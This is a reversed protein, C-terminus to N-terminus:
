LEEEDDREVTDESCISAIRARNNLCFYDLNWTHVDDAIWAIFLFRDATRLLHLHRQILSGPGPFSRNRDGLNFTSGYKIIPESYDNGKEVKRLSKAARNM